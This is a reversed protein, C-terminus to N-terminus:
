ERRTQKESSKIEMFEEHSFEDGKELSCNSCIYHLNDIDAAGGDAIPTKYDLKATGGARSIPRQCYPCKVNDEGYKDSLYLWLSQKAKELHLHEHHEHEIDREKPINAEVIMRPMLFIDVILWVVLAVLIIFGFWGNIVALWVGFIWFAVWGIVGMILQITGSVNLDCYFRHFGLSGFLLLLIYGVALSKQSEPMGSMQVHVRRRQRETELQEVRHKLQATELQEVRRKLRSLEDEKQGESNPTRNIKENM